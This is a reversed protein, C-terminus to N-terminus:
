AGPAPTTWDLGPFRAFDRDFSVLRCGLSVATAALAADPVLDGAADGALCQAEVEDLHTLEADARVYGPQQCVARAFVFAEAVSSPVAFIRHHTAIRVFSVWVWDPAGFPRRAAVLADFWPRTREHQPHDQRHAALLVNVDLLDM